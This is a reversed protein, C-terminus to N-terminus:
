PLREAQPKEEKEVQKILSAQQIYNVFKYVEQYPKTVLYNLLEQAFEPSIELM